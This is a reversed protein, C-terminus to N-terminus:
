TTGWDNPEAKTTAANGDAWGVLSRKVSNIDNGTSWLIAYFALVIGALVKLFM